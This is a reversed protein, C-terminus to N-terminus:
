NLLTHFLPEKFFFFFFFFVNRNDVNRFVCVWVTDFSFIDRAKTQANEGIRQLKPSRGMCDKVKQSPQNASLVVIEQLPIMETIIKFPHNILPM